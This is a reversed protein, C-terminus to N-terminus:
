RTATAAAARATVLYYDVWGARYAHLWNRGWSDRYETQDMWTDFGRWVHDGISETRVDSFGAATLDATFSDVPQVADVGDRVTEILEALHAPGQDDPTFFTTLAFRGGPRLVRHAERAFTALDSFHQAAEVSYIGTFSADPWPLDLASGQHYFLCKPYTHLEEANMREARTLQDASLDLGHVEAPGFERVVLATGVGIGCGAELLIDDPRVDLQDVVVRYLDEQSRTRQDVTIPEGTALVDDAWYGFNIFNGSFLSFSSLDESGYMSALLAGREESPSTESM